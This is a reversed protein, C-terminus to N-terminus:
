RGVANINRVLEVVMARSASLLVTDINFIKAPNSTFAEWTKSLVDSGQEADKLPALKPRIKEREKLMTKLSELVTGFDISQERQLKNATAPLAALIVELILDNSHSQSGTVGNAGNLKQYEELLQLLFQCFVESNILGFHMFNGLMRMINKSAYVNGDQVLVQNLSDVISSFLESAFDFDDAAVLGVLASYLNVKHPMVQICSLLTESVTTKHGKEKLVFPSILQAKLKQLHDDVNERKEDGIRIIM